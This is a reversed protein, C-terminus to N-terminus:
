KVIEVEENETGPNKQVATFFLTKYEIVDAGYSKIYCFRPVQNFQSVAIYDSITFLGFLIIICGIVILMRHKIKILITKTNIYVGVTLIVAGIIAYICGWSSENPFIALASCMIFVGFVMMLISVIKSMEIKFKNKSYEAIKLATDKTEQNMNGSKREGNIIEPISVQYFEALEVILSIDPMNNGTEWRSVTRGSVNLVEALSAQTMNKEKRLEKLFQGIKVQDM